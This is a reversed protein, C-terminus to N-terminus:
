LILLYCKSEQCLKDEWETKKVVFRCLFIYFNKCEELLSNNNNLFLSVRKIEKEQGSAVSGSVSQPQSWESVRM